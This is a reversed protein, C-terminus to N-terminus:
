MLSARSIQHHNLMVIAVKWDFVVQIMYLSMVKFLREIRGVFLHWFGRMIVRLYIM